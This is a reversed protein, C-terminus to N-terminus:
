SRRRRRTERLWTRLVVRGYRYGYLFNGGKKSHGSTRVRMRVPREEYRAGSMIAGILLESAQYQPEDLQLRGTLEARMARVPNATDTVQTGSLLTILRAYVLVGLNRVVDDSATSGLRRSGNVFDAEGAVVPSLVVELDGPDTQGDADATVVYRAGHERALRYGLRLAAGQGRNVPAVCAYHGAARVIAATGDDDGDVVVIAVADLDCIQKPLGGVVSGINDAEKYAAIVIAVPPLQPEGHVRGFEEAAVGDVLEDLAGARKRRRSADRRFDAVIGSM